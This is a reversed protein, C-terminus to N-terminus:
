RHWWSGELIALEWCGEARRQCHFMVASPVSRFRANPGPIPAHAVDLVLMPLVLRHEASYAMPIAAQPADDLNRAVQVLPLIDNREVFVARGVLVDTYGSRLEAERAHKLDCCVRGRGCRETLLDPARPGTNNLPRNGVGSGYQERRANQKGRSCGDPNM